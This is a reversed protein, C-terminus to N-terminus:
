RQPAVTGFELNIEGTAAQREFFPPRFHENGVDMGLDYGDEAASPNRLIQGGLQAPLEERTFDFQHDFIAHSPPARLLEDRDARRSKEALADLAQTRDLDGSVRGDLRLDVETRVFVTLLRQGHIRGPREHGLVEVFERVQVEVVFRPRIWPKAAQNVERAKLDARACAAPDHGVGGGGSKGLAQRLQCEDELPDQGLPLLM